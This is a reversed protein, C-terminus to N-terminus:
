RRRIQTKEVKAVEAWSMEQRLRRQNSSGVTLTTDNADIAHGARRTRPSSAAASMPHSEMPSLPPCFAAQQEPTLPRQQTSLPSKNPLAGWHLDPQDSSGNRGHVANEPPAPSNQAPTPATEISHRSFVSSAMSSDTLSPERPYPPTASRSPTIPMPLRSGSGRSRLAYGAPNNLSPSRQRPSETGIRLPVPSQSPNPVAAQQIGSWQRTTDSMFRQSSRSAPQLSPRPAPTSPTSRSNSLGLGIVGAASAQGCRTVTPLSTRHPGRGPGRKFDSQQKEQELRRCKEEAEKLRAQLLALEDERMRRANEVRQEYTKDKGELEEIRRRQRENERQLTVLSAFKKDWKDEVWSIPRKCCDGHYIQHVGGLMSLKEDIKDVTLRSRPNSAVMRTIINILPRPRVTEQGEYTFMFPPTVLAHATLREIHKKLKEERTRLQEELNQRGSYNLAEDFEAVRVNYLVTAINLYVLGLSYTDSLQMSSGQDSYLEPARWRETGPVDETTTHDQGSVDRSIGFDALYVRDAKLLINSPKIDLHRVDNAHCYALARAICGVVARLFELPCRASSELFQSSPTPDIAALDKIDLAYLRELIDERDGQGQRLAEIDDLLHSLNCIAAPWILLCLEHARPSYTAVLKVVHRHDLKRMTLAEQRLDDISFGRRRVIRKRALYVTGHIVKEVCGFAGYGLDSLKVLKSDFRKAETGCFLPKHASPWAEDGDWSRIVEQEKAEQEFQWARDYPVNKGVTTWRQRLDAM